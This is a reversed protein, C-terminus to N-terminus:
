PTLFTLKESSKAYTSFSYDDSEGQVNSVNETTEAFHFHFMNM